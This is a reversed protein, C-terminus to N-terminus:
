EVVLRQTQGGARLLYFGAPLDRLTLERTAPAPLTRLRRGTADLVELATAGVPLQVRAAGPAPNPWVRLATTLADAATGLPRGFVLAFRGRVAGAAGVSFQVMTTSDLPYQTATLRDLIAAGAPLNHWDSVTLKYSGASPLVAVLEVPAAGPGAYTDPLANIALEDTPLSITLLTPEGANYGPLPADYPLDFGTTADPRFAVFAESALAGAPANARRLALGLVTSPGSVSAPRYHLPNAYSTLRLANTFTFTLPANSVARAFFGQAMAVHGNTLSGVGGARTLYIGNQGGTSQQVYIAGSMGTPLQGPGAGPTVLDWNIPAPYPNGLLHWGSKQGGGLFPGTVTLNSVPLNGNGLTGGFDPTLPKIYVSFGRGSTLPDALTTPSYWGDAFNPDTPGGRTEDFGFINPFQGAPLVPTPLVNYAPNVYPAFGGIGAVALDSMTSGSVPASMHRYGAGAAVVPTLFRQVIATGGTVAGPGANVVMATGANNSILTLNQGSLGFNGSTATLTLLRTVSAAGTLTLGGPADVTLNRAGTLGLGTIQALSPQQYGYDATPSYSRTGAVQIAGTPGTASIGQPHCITMTAGAQLAFSGSGGLVFCGDNWTGGTQVVVAGTVTENNTLTGNGGNLVTINHWPGPPVNMTTSIILDAYENFRIALGGGSFTGSLWDLDNDGDFDAMALGFGGAPVPVTQMTGFTGNGANLFLGGNGAINTVLLDNDGDGDVDALAPKRPNTGAPYAVATGFTGGTNLCVSVTNAIDDASVLDPDGDNDVDGLTLGSPFIGVSLTTAPGFTGNGANLRVFTNNTMINALVVVDLDGDGEVDALAVDAPTIAMPYSTPAGFTGNGANLRVTFCDPSAEVLVLDLDGDADLDGVALEFPIGATAVNTAAGLTGGSNLSVSFSSANQNATVLDPDGDADLDAAALATAGNGTAVTQGLTFANGNGPNAYVRVTGVNFDTVLADADGDGDIDAAAVGRSSSAGFPVDWGGNLQGPGTGAGARFQHVHGQLLPNFPYNNTAQADTTLTVSVLEGPRFDATPNFTIVNGSASGAGARRGTEAGFVRASNASAPANSMPQDFTFTLNTPPAVFSQHSTPTTSLLVPPTPLPPPSNQNLLVNVTSNGTSSALFDIDGDNDLDGTTLNLVSASVPTISGATYTLGFGTNLYAKVQAPTTTSALVDLDGDADIDATAVDNVQIGAGGLSIFSAFAGSGLGVAREVGDGAVIIDLIGDATVDALAVNRPQSILTLDSGGSFNGLGDNLRISVTNGGYSGTVLDLDGDNDVDGVAISTCPAFEVLYQSGSFAGAGNGLRISASGFFNATLLDLNGDANVDALAPEQPTDPLTLGAGLAFFGNGANILMRVSIAPTNLGTAVALDIDGDNDVDGAAIGRPQTGAMAFNGPPGFAGGGTGLRVTVSAGTSNATVVDLIGDGNLDATCVGNPSAGTPASAAASFVGVGGTAATTFQYALGRVPAINAPYSVNATTASVSVVEGPRFDGYPTFQALGDTQTTGMRRGGAQASFVLLRTGAGTAYHYKIFQNAKLLPKAAVPVNLANTLPTLPQIQMAPENYMQIIKQGNYALLDIDGDGDLDGPTIRIGPYVDPLYVTLRQQTWAPGPGGLLCGVGTNLFGYLSTYLLDTWGDGNVDAVQWDFTQSSVLITAVLPVVGLAGTGNNLHINFNNTYGVTVDLDGDHDFDALRLAGAFGAVPITAGLTFTGSGNNRITLVNTLSGINGLRALLVLDLDGDNDMDGTELSVPTDTGNNFTSLLVFAGAGNNAFVRVLPAGAQYNHSVALDLDGDADFDGLRLEKIQGLGTPQLGTLTFTGLGNNTWVLVQLNVADGILLDMDGDGDVDATQPSVLTLGTGQTLTAHFVMGGTGTNRYVQVVGSPQVALLDLDGDGDIDPTVADSSVISLGAGEVFFGQGTGGAAATFQTVQGTALNFGGSSQAATTVTTSIREGANAAVTPSFWLRNTLASGTGAKRGGTRESFMRVSGVSGPTGSMTQSFSITQLSNAGATYANRTPLAGTITPAQAAAGLSLLALALQSTTYHKSM